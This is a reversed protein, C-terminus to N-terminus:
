GGGGRGRLMLVVWCSGALVCPCPPHRAPSGTGRAGHGTDCMRWGTSNATPRQGGGRGALPRLSCLAPGSRVDAGHTSGGPALAALPSNNHMDPLALARASHQTRMRMRCGATSMCLAPRLVARHDVARCFRRAALLSCAMRGMATRSKTLRESHCKEHARGRKDLLEVRLRESQQEISLPHSRFRDSQPRGCCSPNWLVASADFRPCSQGRLRCPGQRRHLGAAPPTQARPTPSRLGV